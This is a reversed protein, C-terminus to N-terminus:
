IKRNEGDGFRGNLIDVIQFDVSFFRATWQYDFKKCAYFNTANAGAVKQREMERQRAREAAREKAAKRAAKTGYPPHPKIDILEDRVHSTDGRQSIEFKIFREYEVCCFLKSTFCFSTIIRLEYKTSFICPIRVDEPKIEPNELEEETPFPLVENKCFMCPGTFLSKKLFEKGQAEDDMESNMIPPYQSEKFYQLIAPPGISPILISEDPTYDEEYESDSSSFMEVTPPRYLIDEKPTQPLPSGFSLRSKSGSPEAFKYFM